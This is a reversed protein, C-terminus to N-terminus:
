FRKRFQLDLMVAWNKSFSGSFSGTLPGGEQVVDGDGMDFYNLNVRCLYDLVPLEIGAGGGIVRDFPLLVDRKSNKVASTGYLGGVSVARDEGYRYRLGSTVVWMDQCESRVDISDQEVKIHTLGFESMDVWLVDGMLSWREGFQTHFGLQANAPVTFDVDVETGLLDLLALAERLVPDLDSFSPTGKLEPELKSRYTFGVRTTDSFEYMAGLMFGVDGGSEELKVSGDAHDPLPSNVRAKTRQDVYMGYPGGAVSLGDTVRFALPAAAAVFALDTETAHYRGSWQGGYDYGIGSPVNVSFGFRWREGLPHVYFLGPIVLFEKDDDADGGDFTAQDVDFEARKYVLGAQVVLEPRKLRTMGAPSFFVTTADNAGGTLGSLAPGIDGAALAPLLAFSLCLVFRLGHKGLHKM